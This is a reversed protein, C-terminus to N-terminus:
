KIIASSVFILKRVGRGRLRLVNLAPSTRRSARPNQMSQVGVMAALHFVLDMEAVASRLTAADSAPGIFDQRVRHGRDGTRLDDLIRM